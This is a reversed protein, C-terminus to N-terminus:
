PALGPNQSIAAWVNFIGTIIAVVIAVWAAAPLRINIGGNSLKKTLAAVESILGGERITTGSPMMRPTGELANILLAIEPHDHVRPALGGHIENARAWELSIRADLSSQLEQVAEALRM